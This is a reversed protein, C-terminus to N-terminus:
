VSNTCTNRLLNRSSILMQNLLSLLTSLGEGHPYADDLDILAQPPCFSQPFIYKRDSWQGQLQQSVPRQVVVVGCLGEGTQLPCIHSKEAEM